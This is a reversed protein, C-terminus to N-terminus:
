LKEKEDFLHGNPVQLGQSYHVKGQSDILVADIGELRNILALGQEVGLVFVTTSLADAEMSQEALVTVSMMSQVSQGTDPKLIHHYRQGEEIFYREYDGSTSVATQELPLSVVWGADRRPHRIGIWWPQGRKDGLLRTDGGATVAAHRIGRQRLIEIARDVAYGKAIGGLDIRTGPRTFRVQAQADDLKIAQYDIDAVATTLQEPQPRIKKHYDYLNGASAFTVDFAGQSLHSIALAKRLVQLFESSVPVAREYAGANVRSLLSEPRYPSMQRDIRKLEAIVAEIAQQATSAEESWVEVSVNTGMISAKQTHWQALVPSCLCCLNLVTMVLAQM